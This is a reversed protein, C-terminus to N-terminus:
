SPLPTFIGLVPLSLAYIFLVFSIYSITTISYRKWYNMECFSKKKKNKNLIRPFFFGTRSRYEDFEDGFKKALKREELDSWLFLILAFLSWSLIDAVLIGQDKTGPVYLSFSLSILILGLHQPHRIYRYIGTTALGEKRVKIKSIQIFGWLFIVLGLFILIAEFVLTILVKPPSVITEMRIFSGLWQNEGFISFLYYSTFAIPVMWAAMLLLIGAVIPAYVWVSSFIFVIYQLLRYMIKITKSMFERSEEKM